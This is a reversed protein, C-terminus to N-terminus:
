GVAWVRGLQCGKRGAWWREEVAIWPALALCVVSVAVSCEFGRSLHAVVGLLNEMWVWGQGLFSFILFTHSSPLRGKGRKFLGKGECLCTPLADGQAAHGLHDGGTPKSCSFSPVSSPPPPLPFPPLPSFSCSPLALMGCHWDGGGGGACLWGAEEGGWSRGAGGM